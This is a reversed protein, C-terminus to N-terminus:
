PGNRSTADQTVDPTVRVDLWPQLEAQINVYGRKIRFQSYEVTTGPLQAYANGQQYSIYWLGGIQVMGLQLAGQRNAGSNAQAPPQEKKEQGPPTTGNKVEPPLDQSSLNPALALLWFTRLVFSLINAKM